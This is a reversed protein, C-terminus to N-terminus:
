ERKQMRAVECNSGKVSPSAGGGDCELIRLLSLAKLYKYHRVAVRLCHRFLTELLVHRRANAFRQCMDRHVSRSSGCKIAGVRRKTGGALYPNHVSSKEM